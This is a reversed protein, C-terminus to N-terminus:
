KEKIVSSELDPLFHEQWYMKGSDVLSQAIKRLEKESVESSRWTHEMFFNITTVGGEETLTAVNHGSFLTDKLGTAVPMSEVYILHEPIVKRVTYAGGVGPNNPKNSLYVQRGNGEDGMVGDYFFNYGNQWNNFDKFIPWVERVPRDVTWTIDFALESLSYGHETYAAVGVKLTVGPDSDVTVVPNRIRNGSSDSAMASVSGFSIFFLVFMIKYYLQNQTTNM